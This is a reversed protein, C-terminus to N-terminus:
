KTAEALSAIVNVEDDALGRRKGSSISDVKEADYKEIMLCGRSLDPEDTLLKYLLNDKIELSKLTQRTIQEDIPSVCGKALRLLCNARLKERKAKSRLHEEVKLSRFKDFEQKAFRRSFSEVEAATKAEFRMWGIFPKMKTDVIMLEGALNAWYVVSEQERIGRSQSM